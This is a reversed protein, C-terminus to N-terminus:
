VLLKLAHKFTRMRHWTSIILALFFNSSFFAYSFNFAWLLSTWCVCQWILLCLHQQPINLKNQNIECLYTYIYRMVTCCTRCNTIVLICTCQFPRTVLCTKMGHSNLCSPIAPSPVLMRTSSSCGKVLVSGHKFVISSKPSNRKHSLWFAVMDRITEVFSTNKEIFWRQGEHFFYGVEAGFIEGVQFNSWGEGASSTFWWKSKSLKIGRIWLWRQESKGM